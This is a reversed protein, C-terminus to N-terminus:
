IWGTRTQGSIASKGYPNFKGGEQDDISSSTITMTPAPKPAEQVKPQKSPSMSIASPTAPSLTKAPTPTLPAKMGTVNFINISFDPIHLM